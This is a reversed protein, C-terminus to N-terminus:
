RGKFDGARKEIFARLGEQADESAELIQICRGEYELGSRLDMQSGVDICSKILRLALPPRELLTQALKGAEELLQDGPVVQNVLGWQLATEADVFEGTYMVWKARGAGIIRPLRQTGGSGPLLGLKVEPLGFRAVDAALRLDCALAMECGGGAAIGNVASITVKSLGEMRTCLATMKHVLEGSLEGEAMAKIDAGACFARGAGHLIMVRVEEDAEIEGVAQNMERALQLNAANLRDPRNLTIDVLGGKKEYIITEYPM